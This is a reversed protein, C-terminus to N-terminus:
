GTVHQLLYTTLQLPICQIVLITYVLTYLEFLSGVTITQETDIIITTTTDYYVSLLM